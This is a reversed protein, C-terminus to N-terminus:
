GDMAADLWSKWTAENEAVWEAVVVTLDEGNNDVRFMMEEQSANTLTFHELLVWAAPWKDKFGHWAVKVTKPGEFGCDDIADPNPGWSADETCAPEYAPLDVWAVEGVTSFVWHPKWFMMVLPKNGDFAAKLEAVLAGESGSPIAKYNLGLAAITQESRNGWDAPYSLFRGQPYTDPAVLQDACDNLAEWSPLGPCTEEMFKPYVWGEGADLDQLGIDVIMGSEKVQPYIEGLNNTWGELTAHIDGDALAQFQPYNGANIYEVTYGLKELLQGAAHTSLHQGTWENIALNITDDVDGLDASLAVPATSGILVTAIVGYIAKRLKTIHLFINM